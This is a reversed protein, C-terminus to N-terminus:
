VSAQRIPPSIRSRRLPWIVLCNYTLERLGEPEAETIDTIDLELKM